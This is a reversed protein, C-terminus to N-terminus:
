TQIDELESIIEVFFRDYPIDIERFIALFILPPCGYQVLLRYLLLPEM